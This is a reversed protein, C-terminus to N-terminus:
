FRANGGSFVLIPTSFQASRTKKASFPTKQSFRSFCMKRSKRGRKVGGAVGRRGCRACWVGGVVGGVGWRGCGVLRVM